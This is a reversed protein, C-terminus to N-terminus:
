PTARPSVVGTTQTERVTQGEVEAITKEIAEIDPISDDTLWETPIKPDEVFPDREFELPSTRPGLRGSVTGVLHRLDQQVLHLEALARESDREAVRQLMEAHDKSFRANALDTDQKQIWSCLTDKEQKLQGIVSWPWLRVM